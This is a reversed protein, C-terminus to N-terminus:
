YAECHDSSNRAVGHLLPEAIIHPIKSNLCSPYWSHAKMYNLVIAEWEYCLFTWGQTSGEFNSRLKNVTQNQYFEFNSM